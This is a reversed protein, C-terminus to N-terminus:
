KVALVRFGRVLLDGPDCDLIAAARAQNDVTLPNDYALGSWHEIYFETLDSAALVQRLGTQYDRFAIRNPGQMFDAVEEKAAGAVRLQFAFEDMSCLLHAWPQPIYHGYQSGSDCTWLPDFSVYAVGGPKLVRLVEQLAIFPDRIRQFANSSLVIDFLGDRYPMDMANVTHFEIKRLDLVRGKREFKEKLLRLFEGGYHGQVDFNNTVIVRASMGSVLGGLTGGADELKLVRAKTFDVDIGLRAFNRRIDFFAADQQEFDKHEFYTM